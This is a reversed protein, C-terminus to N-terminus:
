LLMLGTQAKIKVHGSETHTQRLNGGKILVGTMNFYPGGRGLGPHPLRLKNCECHCEVWTLDHESTSTCLVEVFSNPFAPSVIQSMVCPGHAIIESGKREHVWM